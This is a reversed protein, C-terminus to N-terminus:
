AKLPTPAQAPLGAREREVKLFALMSAMGVGSPREAEGSTPELGQWAGTAPWYDVTDDLRIRKGGDLWVVNGAGFGSLSPQQMSGQKVTSM